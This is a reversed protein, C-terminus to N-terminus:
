AHVPAWRATVAWGRGRGLSPYQAALLDRRYGYLRCRVSRRGAVRSGPLRRGRHHHCCHRNARRPQTGRAACGSLFGPRGHHSAGLRITDTGVHCQLHLMDLGDLRDLRPLDYRVVTSLHAPDDFSTRDYGGPGTHVPVRSEWNALYIAFRANSVLGVLVIKKV